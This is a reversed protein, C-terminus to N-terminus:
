TIDGSVSFLTQKFQAVDQGLTELIAASVALTSSSYELREKLAVVNAKQEPTIDVGASSAEAVSKQLKHQTYHVLSDFQDARELM